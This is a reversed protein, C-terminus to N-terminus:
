SVENYNFWYLTNDSLKAIILIICKVSYESTVSIDQIICFKYNDVM